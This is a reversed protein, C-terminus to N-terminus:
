GKENQIGYGPEKAFLLSGSSTGFVIHCKKLTPATQLSLFLGVHCLYMLIRLDRLISIPCNWVAQSFIDSHFPIFTM